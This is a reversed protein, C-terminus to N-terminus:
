IARRVPFGSWVCKVIMPLPLHDALALPAAAGIHSDMACALSCSSRHCCSAFVGGGWDVVYTQELCHFNLM